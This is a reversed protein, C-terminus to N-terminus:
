ALCIQAKGQKLQFQWGLPPYAQKCTCTGLRPDPEYVADRPPPTACAPPLLRLGFRLGNYAQQLFWFSVTAKNQLTLALCQHRSASGIRKQAGFDVPSSCDEPLYDVSLMRM